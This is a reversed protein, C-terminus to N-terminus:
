ANSQGSLSLEYPELSFETGDDHLLQGGHQKFSALQSVGIKIAECLAQMADAGAMNIVSGYLPKCSVPCRWQEHPISQSLYPKGVLLEIEIREGSSRIGVVKISAIDSDM